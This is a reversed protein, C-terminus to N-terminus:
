LYTRQSLHNRKSSNPLQPGWHSGSSVVSLFSCYPPLPEATFYGRVHYFFHTIHFWLQRHRQASPRSLLGVTGLPWLTTGSAGTLKLLFVEDSKEELFSSFFSVWFSSLRGEIMGQVSFSGNFLTIQKKGTLNFLDIYNERWWFISQFM